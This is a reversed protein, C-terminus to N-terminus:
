AAMEKSEVDYVRPRRSLMGSTIPTLLKHFPKEPNYRVRYETRVMDSHLSKHTGWGTGDFLLANRQYGSRNDASPRSTVPGVFDTYRGYM